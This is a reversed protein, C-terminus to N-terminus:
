LKEIFEYLEDTTDNHTKLKFYVISKRTLDYKNIISYYERFIDYTYVLQMNYNSNFWSMFCEFLIDISIQDEHEKTSDLYEKTFESIYSYQHIKKNNTLDFIVPKSPRMFIFNKYNKPLADLVDIYEFRQQCSIGCINNQLLPRHEGIIMRSINYQNVIDIKNKNKSIDSKKCFNDLIYNVDHTINISHQITFDFLYSTHHITSHKNYLNNTILMHFKKYSIHHYKHWARVYYQFISYVIELPIKINPTYILKDNIFDQIIISETDPLLIYNLEPTIDVFYKQIINIMQYPDGIFYEYGDSHKTFLRKFIKKLDSEIYGVNEPKCSCLYLIQSGKKYDDLRRIRLTPTNQITKGLKQVNENRHIFERERLLYIYGLKKSM